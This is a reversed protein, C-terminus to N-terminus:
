VKYEELRARWRRFTNFEINLAKAAKYDSEGNQYYAQLILHKNERLFKLRNEMHRKKNAESRSRSCIEKSCFEEAFAEDEKKFRYLLNTFYGHSIGMLEASKKRDCNTERMFKMMNEKHEKFLKQTKAELTPTITQKWKKYQKTGKKNPTPRWDRNKIIEAMKAKYESSQTFSYDQKRKFTLPFDKKWDVESFKNLTRKFEYLQCTKGSMRFLLSCTWQLTGRHKGADAPTQLNTELEEFGFM